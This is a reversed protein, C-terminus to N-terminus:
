EAIDAALADIAAALRTLTRESGLVVMTEFLPPTATKGTIAVRIPMFLQGAKWGLEAALGRLCAEIPEHDWSALLALQEHVRQLASLSDAPTQKKAVLLKPEPTVDDAFFFDLVSPAEALNKLREQELGIADQLYTRDVNEAAIVGAEALFPVSRETLDPVTLSRIYVGNLWVLKQLEFVANARNVRELSFAAVLEELSFVEQTDGPNWGLLALFNVVAEPLYGQKAYDGVLVAGSRKGLKTRDPNTLLPLHAYAPLDFGLAFAIPIQRHTNYLHDAGRIVHSIRMQSDDIVSAFNYTPMGDARVIVLDDLEAADVRMNGRVLDLFDVTGERPSLFRIVYPAGSRERAAREAAALLLCTQPYRFPRREQQARKRLVDLEAPTCWCRYAHGNALLEEVHAQYLSLRESQRYPGCDGGAEYGEDWDLGM